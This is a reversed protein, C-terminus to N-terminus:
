KYSLSPLFISLTKPNCNERRWTLRCMRTSYTFIIRLFSCFGGLQLSWLQLFFLLYIFLFNCCKRSVRVVDSAEMEAREIGNNKWTPSGSAPGPPALYKHGSRRSEPCTQTRFCRSHPALPSPVGPRATHMIWSDGSNLPCNNLMWIGSTTWDTSWESDQSSAM